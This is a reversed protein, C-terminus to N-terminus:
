VTGQYTGIGYINDDNDVDIDWITESDKGSISNLFTDEICQANITISLFLLFFYTKM